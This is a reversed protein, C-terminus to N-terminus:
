KYSYEATRDHVFCLKERREVAVVGRICEPM